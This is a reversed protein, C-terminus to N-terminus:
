AEQSSLASAHETKMTTVDSQNVAMIDKNQNAWHAGM